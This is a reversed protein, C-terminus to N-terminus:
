DKREVQEVLLQRNPQAIGRIVHTQEPKGPGFGKAQKVVREQRTGRVVYCRLPLGGSDSGEPGAVMFVTHTEKSVGPLPFQNDEREIAVVLEVRKGQLQDWTSASQAVNWTTPEYTHSEEVRAIGEFRVPQDAPRAGAQVAPNRPVIKVAQEWPYVPAYLPEDSKKSTAASEAVEFPNAPKAEPKSEAEGPSSPQLRAVRGRYPGMWTEDLALDPDVITNGRAEKLGVDGLQTWNATQISRWQPMYQLHSWLNGYFVNDNLVMNAPQSELRIADNDAGYFINNEVIARADGTLALLNGTRGKGYGPMKDWGFAVTNSRFFLPDSTHGKDVRVTQTAHNVFICNEVTQGNSMRLAGFAGNVFICNRIRCEPLSLWVHETTDSRPDLSGNAEYRNNTKKDFVFGDVIAGRHDEAGEITYGGRQGKYDPPCLLRTAHTWPNRRSFLGDYGGILAVDPMDIRWKGAKLKGHYEGEAVHITDGAECRDLAQFPDRFPRERSGDGGSAGARVFWDRGKVRPTPAVVDAVYPEISEIFFAAKPVSQVAYAIGRVRFLDEPKGSGQYRGMARECTRQVNSGKAFFGTIRTGEGQADYLFIGAIKDRDYLAPMGQVNAVSALGVVLELNQCDVTQPERHWERLDSKAYVKAPAVASAADFRVELPVIRAGANRAPASPDAALALANALSWAPALGVPVQVPKKEEWGFSREKKPPEAPKEPRKAALALWAPDLPLKPDEVRNGEYARLGFEELMEMSGDEAIGFNGGHESRVNCFRNKFFVNNQITVREPNALCYVGNNDSYALVNREIVAPGRLAIASGRYSGLGPSDPDWTFLITNNHVQAPTKGSASSSSLIALGWDISNLIVNNEITSGPNCEIGHFGPNLVICNRVTAPKGFRMATESTKSLATGAADVYQNQDRMDIVIGDVVVDSANSLLRVDQPWNESRSDWHLQTPHRWPDRTAFEADYGGLLAVNDFPIEWTGNGFRGTYVGEAVHVRDGAECREFAQWPDQFPRARSGDGNLAGARVFWDRAACSASLSLSLVVALGARILATNM